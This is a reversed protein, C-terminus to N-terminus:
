SFCYSVTQSSISKLDNHKCDTRPLCYPRTFDGILDEEAAKSMASGIRTSQANQESESESESKRRKLKPINDTVSLEPKSPSTILVGSKDAIKNFLSRRTIDINNEFDSSSISRNLNIRNKENPLSSEQNGVVPVSAEALLEGDTILDISSPLPPEYRSSSVTCVRASSTFYQFLVVLM